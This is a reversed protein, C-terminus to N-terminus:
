ALRVGAPCSEDDLPRRLLHYGRRELDSLCPEVDDSGAVFKLQDLAAWRPEIEQLFMLLRTTAPPRGGKTKLKATVKAKAWVAVLDPDPELSVLRYQGPALLPHTTATQIPWGEDERLERVRRAWESIGAVGSLEEKSVISGRNWQLYALIRSRASTLEHARDIESFASEVQALAQGFAARTALWESGDEASAESLQDALRRLHTESRKLCSAVQLRWDKAGSSGPM